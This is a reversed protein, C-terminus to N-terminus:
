ITERSYCVIILEECVHLVRTREWGGTLTSITPTIPTRARKKRAGESRKRRKSETIGLKATTSFACPAGANGVRVPPTFPAFFALPFGLHNETRPNPRKLIQREIASCAQTSSSNVCARPIRLARLIVVVNGIGHGM